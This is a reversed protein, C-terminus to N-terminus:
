HTAKIALVMAYRTYMFTYTTGSVNRIEFDPEVRWYLVPHKNKASVGTEKAILKCWQLLKDRDYRIKSALMRCAADNAAEQSHYYSHDVEWMWEKYPEGNPCHAPDPGHDWPVCKVINNIEVMAEELTM